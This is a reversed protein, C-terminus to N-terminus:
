RRGQRYNHAVVAAYGANAVIMLTVAAVRHRRWLRESLAITGAAAAAKVGIMLGPRNAFPAVLPNAETRGAGVARITSHADLAQLVGFGAYLPLLGRPRAEESRPLWSSSRAPPAPELTILHAAARASQLLPASPGFSASTPILPEAQALATAPVIVAVAACVCWRRLRESARVM